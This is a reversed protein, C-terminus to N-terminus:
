LGGMSIVQAQLALHFEGRVNRSVPITSEDMLTLLGGDTTKQYRDIHELNILHSKHVRFFGLGKLAVEFYKLTIAVLIPPKDKVYIRTYNVDAAMRIIDRIELLYYGSQSPIMIKRPNPIEPKSIVPPLQLGRERDLYRKFKRISEELLGDDIPKLLYDVADLHIAELAYHPYSTIFIIYPLSKAYTRLSEMSNGDPFNIDLMLLDPNHEDVLDFLGELHDVEAVIEINPFMRILKNRLSQRVLFEDEAIICKMPM